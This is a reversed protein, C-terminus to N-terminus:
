LLLRDREVELEAVRNELKIASIEAMVQREELTMGSLSQCVSEEPSSDRSPPKTSLKEARKGALTRAKEVNTDCTEMDSSAHAFGCWLCFTKPM